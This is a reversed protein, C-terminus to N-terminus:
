DQACVHVCVRVRLTIYHPETKAEPFIMANVLEKREIFNALESDSLRM